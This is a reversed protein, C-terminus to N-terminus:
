GTVTFSSKVDALSSDGAYVNILGPEVLFRGANDYFGVSTRDIRFSVTRAEGPGLRVRQFGVLRRVPQAISAVPDNVYVQVVDDGARTGTNRVSVSATVSGRPSMSAASLRLDSVAFTTYSLGYGFPYLPSSPGDAYKSTWKSNPDEPRGTNTHNYYLPVQGVTRPFTVPLKGGPNVTGFLIDAVANGTQIGGFWAELIAPASADLAPLTLPRGNVVVVVFPKGTAKVADVLAQQQGPLGIDQRSSAEGSQGSGEGVVVVTADAASAAAAVDAFGPQDPTPCVVVPTTFGDGTVTCGPTVTVSASPAAARVGAAVSVVDSRQGVGWWPGLLDTTDAMPGVVAIKPLSPSLPLTGGANKLLVMSRAAASRAAAVDAPRMTKGPVASEDVYPHDFLGARFKVRLVDRVADDIRRPSVLHQALLQRGYTRVNTSVMEMDMGANLALRAADAGDAAVGHPILEQVATYDSDVLGDFHWEGRLIDTLTHHNATAPIGGITNFSPMIGGVGADVAARFPPLYLNRLTSESIDAQNYDRGGEAAGYAAFHKAEAMVKDPASYDTGQAARVKAAAFVSGLYPDEGSGEAIRGWRPEHSVDVMPSFIQKIGVAASERAGITFDATAVGPDFSSAEGLGIPFVTRFGHITDYGFLIPIHLRTHDVALHQIANIEPATTVGFVAGVRGVAAAAKVDDGGGVLQQLQGLKEDITMRSLLAEVKREVTDHRTAADAAPAVTCLVVTVAAALVFGKSRRIRM